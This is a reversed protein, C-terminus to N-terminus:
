FGSPNDIDMDSKLSANAYIVTKRKEPIQIAWDGKANRVISGFLKRLRLQSFKEWFVWGFYATSEEIYFGPVREGPEVTVESVLTPVYGKQTLVGVFEMTCDRREWILSHRARKVIRGEIIDAFVERRKEGPPFGALNGAM